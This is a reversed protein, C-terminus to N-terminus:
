YEHSAVIEAVTVVPRGIGLGSAGPTSWLTM